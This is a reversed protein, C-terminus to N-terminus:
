SRCAGQDDCTGGTGCAKGPAPYCKGDAASCEACQACTATPSVRCDKCQANDCTAIYTSLEGDWPNMPGCPPKAQTPEAVNIWGSGGSVQVKIWCQTRNIDVNYATCDGNTTTGFQFQFQTCPTIPPLDPVPTANWCPAPMIYLAPAALTSTRCEASAPVATCPRGTTRGWIGRGCFSIPGGWFGAKCPATCFSPSRGDRCSAPWGLSNPPTGAPLGSCVTPKCSGQVPMWVGKSCVRTFAGTFGPSCPAVCTYGHPANHCKGPWPQSNQSPSLNPPGVKCGPDCSGSVPGWVGKSCTAKVSGTSGPKCRATCSGGSSTAQRCSAPWGQSNPPTGPPKGVCSKPRCAGVVPGWVGKNCSARVTGTYGAVCGTTCSRGSPTSVCSTPWLKSNPSRSRPLGRCGACEVQSASLILCLAALCRLLQLRFSVWGCRPQGMAYVTVIVLLNVEM